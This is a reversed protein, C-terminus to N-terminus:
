TALRSKEIPCSLLLTEHYIDEPLVEVFELIGKETAQEFDEYTLFYESPGPLFIFKHCNVLSEVFLLFSGAHIANFAYMGKPTPISPTKQTRKLSVM